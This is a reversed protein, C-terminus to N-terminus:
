WWKLLKKVGLMKDFIPDLMPIIEDPSLMVPLEGVVVWKNEFVDFYHLWTEYYRDDNRFMKIKLPIGRYNYHDHYPIDGVRRCPLFGYPSTTMWSIKWDKPLFAERSVMM